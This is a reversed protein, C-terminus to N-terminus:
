VRGGFSMSKDRYAFYTCLIGVEEIRCRKWRTLRRSSISNCRPLQSLISAKIWQMWKPNQRCSKCQIWEPARLSLAPPSFRDSNLPIRIFLSLYSSCSSGFPPTFFLFLENSWSHLSLKISLIPKPKNQRGLQLM